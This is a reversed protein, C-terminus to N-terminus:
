FCLDFLQIVIEHKLHILSLYNLVMEPVSVAFNFCHFLLNILKLHDLLLIMLHNLLILLLQLLNLLLVKLYFLMMLFLYLHLIFPLEHALFSNKILVKLNILQHFAEPLFVCYNQTHFTVDIIEM